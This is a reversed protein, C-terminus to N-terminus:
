TGTGASGSQTRSLEEQDMDCIRDGASDFDVCRNDRLEYAGGKVSCHEPARARLRGFLCIAVFQICGTRALSVQSRPFLLLAITRARCASDRIIHTPELVARANRDPPISRRGPRPPVPLRLCRADLPRTLPQSNDRRVRQWVIWRRARSWFGQSAQPLNSCLLM